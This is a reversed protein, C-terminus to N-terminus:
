VIEAVDRAILLLYFNNSLILVATKKGGHDVAATTGGPGDGVVGYPIAVLDKAFKCEVPTLSKVFYKEAVM